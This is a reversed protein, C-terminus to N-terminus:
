RSKGSKQGSATNYKRTRLLVDKHADSIYEIVDKGTLAAAFIKGRM